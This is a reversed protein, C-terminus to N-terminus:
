NNRYKFHTISIIVLLNLTVTLFSIVSLLIYILMTESLPRQPRQCSTNHLHPFCFESEALTDMIPLVSLQPTTSIQGGTEKYLQDQTGKDGQWKKLISTNEIWLAWMWPNKEWKPFCTCKFQQTSLNLNLLSFSFCLWKISQWTWCVDWTYMWISVFSKQLIINTFM